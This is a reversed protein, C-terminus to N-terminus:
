WGAPDCVDVPAALSRRILGADTELRRGGLMAMM